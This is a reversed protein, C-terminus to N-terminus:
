RPPGLSQLLREYALRSLRRGAKREAKRVEARVFRWYDKQLWCLPSNRDAALDLFERSLPGPPPPPEGARL